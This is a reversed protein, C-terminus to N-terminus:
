RSCGDLALVPRSSTAGICRRASAQLREDAALRVGAPADRHLHVREDVRLHDVLQVRRRGRARADVEDHAADAAQPGAHGAQRLADRHARDDAAVELVRPDEPEALGAVVLVSYTMPEASM